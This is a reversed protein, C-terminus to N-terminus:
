AMINVLQESGSPAMTAMVSSQMLNIPATSSGERRNQRERERSGNSRDDRVFVDIDGQGFGADSFSNRLDAMSSDLVSKVAQSSAVFTAKVHDGQVKLEIDIKGLNPPEVSITARHVGYSGMNSLHMEMYEIFQAPFSSPTMRVAAAAGSLRASSSAPTASSQAADTSTEQTGTSSEDAERKGTFVAGRIGAEHEKLGAAANTKAEAAPVESRPAATETKDSTSEQKGAIGSAEPKHLIRKDGAVNRNFADGKQLAAGEQTTALSATQKMSADDTRELSQEFSGSEKAADSGAKIAFTEKKVAGSSKSESDTKALEAAASKDSTVKGSAVSSKEKSTHATEGSEAAATKAESTSRSVGYPTRSQVVSSVSERGAKGQTGTDSGAAAKGNGAAASPVALGHQMRDKLGRVTAADSQRDKETESGFVGKSQSGEAGKKTTGAVSKMGSSMLGTKRVQRALQEINQLPDTGDTSSGQDATGTIGALASMLAAFIDVNGGKSKASAVQTSTTATKGQAAETNQIVSM